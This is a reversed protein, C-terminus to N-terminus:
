PLLTCTAASFYEGPTSPVTFEYTITSSSITKGVFISTRASSDTYLAFNHPASDKNTFNMTVSAGAPVTITSKDFAMNRAALDITISQSTTPTLTPTSGPIPTATVTPTPAPTSSCAALVSLTIILMFVLLHKRSVSSIVGM